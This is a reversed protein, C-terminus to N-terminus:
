LKLIIRLVESQRGPHVFCLVLMIEKYLFSDFILV